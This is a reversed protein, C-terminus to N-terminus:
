QSRTLLVGGAREFVTGPNAGCVSCYLVPEMLTKEGCNPCHDAGPALVTWLTRVWDGLTYLKHATSFALLNEMSEPDLGVFAVELEPALDADFARKCRRALELVSAHSESPSFHIICMPMLEKFRRRKAIRQSESVPVSPMSTQLCM